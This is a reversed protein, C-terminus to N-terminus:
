EEEWPCVTNRNQPDDSTPVTTTTTTTTQAVIDTTVVDKDTKLEFSNKKKRKKKHEVLTDSSSSAAGATKEVVAEITTPIMAAAAEAPLECDHMEIDDDPPDVEVEALPAISPAPTPAPAVCGVTLIDGVAATIDYQYDDDDPVCCEQYEETTPSLEEQPIYKDDFSQVDLNIQEGGSLVISSSPSPPPPPIQPPLIIIPLIEEINTTIASSQPTSSTSTIAPPLPVSPKPPSPVPSAKDEDIPCVVNITPTTGYSTSAAAAGASTTSSILEITTTADGTNFTAIVSPATQQYLQQQQQQQTTILQDCESSSSKVLNEKDEEEKTENLNNLTKENTDRLIVNKIESTFQENENNYKLPCQNQQDQQIIQACEETITAPLIHFEERDEFSLKNFLNLSLQSTSPRQSKPVITEATTTTSIQTSQPQNITGSQIISTQVAAPSSQQHRFFFQLDSM